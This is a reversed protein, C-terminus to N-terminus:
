KLVLCMNPRPNIPNSPDNLAYAYSCCPDHNNSETELKNQGPYNATFVFAIGVHEYGLLIPPLSPVIDSENVVRMTKLCGPINDREVRLSEYYAKFSELGVRPSATNLNKVIFGLAIAEPVALTALASGLSHGTITLRNGPVKLGQLEARLSDCLGKYVASWGRAIEIGLSSYTTPPIYPVPKIERDALFDQISKSGRFVLFAYGSSKSQFICAFPENVIKEKGDIDIFTYASWILKGFYFEEVRHGHNFLCTTAPIWKFDPNKFPNKMWRTYEEYMESLVNVLFNCTKFEALDLPVLDRLPFRVNINPM